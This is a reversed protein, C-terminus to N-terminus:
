CSTAQSHCDCKERYMATDAMAILEDETESGTFMALGLSTSIALAGGSTPIPPEAVATCLREYLSKADAETCDPSIVLFEDGGWRGFSDYDRLAGKVRGVFGCLAEDGVNHGYTDNIVKFHNIDLIGIAVAIKKRAARSLERSLVELIARRNLIGTLSDHSAEHALTDRAAILSAQMELMRNGANVRARLIDPDFPKPVYDNAGANLGEIVHKKEDMATVMIIYPPSGDLNRVRRTLELGDMQPMKWDILLLKPADPLQLAAWAQEGDEFAVVEFSWNRLLATLM